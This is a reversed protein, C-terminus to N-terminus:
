GRLHEGPLLVEMKRPATFPELREMSRMQGKVRKSERAEFEDDERGSRM